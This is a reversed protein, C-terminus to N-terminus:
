LSRAKITAVAVTARCSSLTVPVLMQDAPLCSELLRLHSGAEERFTGIRGILARENPTTKGM